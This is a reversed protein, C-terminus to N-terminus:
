LSGLEGKIASVIFASVNISDDKKMRQLEEKYRMDRKPFTITIQQNKM